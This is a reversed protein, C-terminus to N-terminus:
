LVLSQSVLKAHIRRSVAAAARSASCWPQFPEGMRKVMVRARCWVPSFLIVLGLARNQRSKAPSPQQRGQRRAHDSAAHYNNALLGSSTAPVHHIVLFGAFDPNRFDQVVKDAALDQGSRVDAGALKPAPERPKDAIESRKNAALQPNAVLQLFLDVGIVAEGRRPREVWRAIVVKEAINAIDDRLRTIKGNAGFINQLDRPDGPRLKNNRRRVGAVGEVRCVRAPATKVIREVARVGNGFALTRSASLAVVLHTTGLDDIPDTCKEVVHNRERFAAVLRDSCVLDSAAFENCRKFVAQVCPQPMRAPEGSVFLLREVRKDHQKAVMAQM